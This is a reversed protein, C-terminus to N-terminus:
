ATADWGIELELPEFQPTSGAPVKSSTWAQGGGHSRFPVGLLVTTAAVEFVAVGKEQDGQLSQWCAVFLKQRLASPAESLLLRKHAGEEAWAGLSEPATEQVPIVVLLM